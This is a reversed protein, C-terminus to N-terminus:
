QSPRKGITKKRILSMARRYRSRTAEYSLTLSQAIEVFSLGDSHRLILIDRYKQPIERLLEELILGDDTEDWPNFIQQDQDDNLDEKRRATKRHYDAVKNMAVRHFWTTFASREEFTCISDMLGMFIDQTVDDVDPEPVLHHVRSHVKPFHAKVLVDLCDKDGDKVHRVLEEDTLETIMEFMGIVGM